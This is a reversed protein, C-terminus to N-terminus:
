SGIVLRFGAAFCVLDPMIRNRVGVRCDSFPSSYSGGRLSRPETGVATVQVYPGLWRGRNSLDMQSSSCWEWVNGSFDFKAINSRGDGGEAFVGVPSSRAGLVFHHNFTWPPDEATELSVHLSNALEMRCEAICDKVHCVQLWRAAGEWQAENPLGSLSTAVERFTKRQENEWLAYAQAHWFTGTVPALGLGKVGGARLSEPLRDHEHAQLFWKGAEGPWWRSSKYDNSSSFCRYQANTVLRGAVRFPNLTVPFLNGDGTRENAFASLEGMEFQYPRGEAGIQLWYEAKLVLAQGCVEFIPSGGLEGLQDGAEVRLSIHVKGDYMRGHLTRRLRNLIPHTGESEQSRKEPGWPGIPDATYPPEEFCELHELAVRAALPVNGFDLLKSVWDVPNGRLQVAFRVTEELPSIHPPPLQFYPSWDSKVGVDQMSTPDSRRRQWQEYYNQVPQMKPAAVGNPLPREVTLGYAAFFELLLQHRFGIWNQKRGSKDETRRRQVLGLHSATKTLTQRKQSDQVDRWWKSEPLEIEVKQQDFQMHRAQEALASLLPGPATPLRWDEDALKAQLDSLRELEEDGLLQTPLTGNHSQGEAGLRSWILTSLLRARSMPRLQLDTPLLGKAMLTCALSLMGPSSYLMKQTVDGSAVEDEKLSALMTKTLAEDQALRQRVYAHRQGKGWPLLHAIQAGYPRILELSRVTLLPPRHSHTLGFNSDLWERLINARHEVGCHLENIGDLLIQFRAFPCNLMEPWPGLSPEESQFWAAFAQNLTRPLKTQPDELVLSRAAIWIPVVGFHGSMAYRRLAKFAHYMQFEAMMTTKGAAPPASLVWVPPQNPMFTPDLLEVLSRAVLTRDVKSKTPLQSVSGTSGDASAELEIPFFDQALRAPEGWLVHDGGAWRAYSKLLYWAVANPKGKDEHRGLGNAAEQSSRLSEGRLPQILDAPAVPTKPQAEEIPHGEDDRAPEYPVDLLFRMLAEGVEPLPAGLHRHAIAISEAVTGASEPKILDGKYGQGEAVLVLNVPSENGAQLRRDIVFSGLKEDLDTISDWGWDLPRRRDAPADGLLQASISMQGPHIDRLQQRAIMMGPLAINLHERLVWLAALAFAGTASPGTIAVTGWDDLTQSSGRDLVMPEPHLSWLLAWGSDKGPQASQLCGKLLTQVKHLGDEFSTDHGTRLSLLCAAPARFLRGHSEATARIPTLRLQARRGQEGHAGGTDVLMVPMRVAPELGYRNALYERLAAQEEDLLHDDPNIHLCERKFSRGALAAVALARDITEEDACWIRRSAVEEVSFWAEALAERSLSDPGWIQRALENLGRAVDDGRSSALAEPDFALALYECFVLWMPEGGGDAHGTVCLLPALSHEEKNALAQWVFQWHSRSLRMTITVTTIIERMKDSDHLSGRGVSVTHNRVVRWGSRGDGPVALRFRM